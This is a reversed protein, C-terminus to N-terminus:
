SIRDAWAVLETQGYYWWYAQNGPVMVSALQLQTNM